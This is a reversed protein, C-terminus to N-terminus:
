CHICSIVGQIVTKGNNISPPVLAFSLKSPTYWIKKTLEDGLTPGDKDMTLAATSMDKSVRGSLKTKISGTASATSIKQEIKLELVTNPPIDAGDGTVAAKLVGFVTNTLLTADIKADKLGEFTLTLTDAGGGFTISNGRGNFSGTITLTVKVSPPLACKSECNYINHCVEIDHDNWGVLALCNDLNQECKTRCDSDDSPVTSQQGMVPMLALSLTILCIVGVLLLWPRRM